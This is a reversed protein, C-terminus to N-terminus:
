AKFEWVSADNWMLNIEERYFEFWRKYKKRNFVFVPKAGGATRYPYHRIYILGNPSEPDIMNAGFSLPNNITRVEIRDPAIKKLDSLYKLHGYAVARFHELDAQMYNRAMAMEFAPSEPHVMLVKMRTGEKLRSELISFYNNLMTNMTASVFWLERARKLDERLAEPTEELFITDATNAGVRNVVAEAVKGALLETDRDSRLKQIRRYLLAYALIFVLLTPVLNSIVAQLFGQQTASLFTLSPIGFYALALLVLGVVAIGVAFKEFLEFPDNDRKNTDM